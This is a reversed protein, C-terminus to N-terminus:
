ETEAFRRNKKRKGKEKEKVIIVVNISALETSFLLSFHNFHFLFVEFDKFCKCTKESFLIQM